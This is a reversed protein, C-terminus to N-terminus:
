SETPEGPDDLEVDPVRLGRELAEVISADPVFDALPPLRDLSDLGLRELFADTTSFLTPNGPTTITASEGRRLRARRADEADRRRQCRPDGLDAGARDAAQLRHDRADRARSGVAARDPGRARVARRVAYADPHTQIATAVPSGRRAPVRARANTSPRSSTASSRSGRRRCSSSSRSCARAAGARDGRARGGRDGGRRWTMSARRHERQSSESPVQREVGTPRATTDVDAEVTTAGSTSTPSRRSTSSSASAPRWRCARRARRLEDAQELDIVGQKFLELVALFRVIVELKAGSASRSTASASRAPRRCCRSCRRSRTACAPGSRRSTIPRAGRARLKPALGRARRRSRARRALDAGASRARAFPVAGRSRRTRAVSRSAETIRSHLVQARTRSRRASSCGRSCSTASRSARDAGRRARRRRPGPLLRRAKLEILTAAILLFETAVDLDVREM